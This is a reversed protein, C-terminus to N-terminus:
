TGNVNWKQDIPTVTQKADKWGSIRGTSQGSIRATDALYGAPCRAPYRALIWGSMRGFIWGRYRAQCIWVLLYLGSSEVERNKKKVNQLIRMLM